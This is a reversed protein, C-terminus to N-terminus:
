PAGARAALAALVDTHRPPVTVTMWVHLEDERRIDFTFFSCCAAERAALDRAWAATPEGGTLRLRLETEGIREAALLRETFLRDFEAARLPVETTPLTCAEPVWNTV